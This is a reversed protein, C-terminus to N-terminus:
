APVRRGVLGWIILGIGGLAVLAGGVIELISRVIGSGGPSVVYPDTAPGACVLEVTGAAATFRGVSSADGLTIRTGQRSGHFRQGDGIECQVGRAVSEARRAIVYVTYREGVVAEFITPQGLPARARAQDDIADRANVAAAIGLAAFLAGGFLM